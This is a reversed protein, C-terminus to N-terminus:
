AFGELVATSAPHTQCMLRLKYCFSDVEAILQLCCDAVHSVEYHLALRDLAPLLQLLQVQFAWLRGDVHSKM